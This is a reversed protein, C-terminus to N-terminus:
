HDEHVQQHAEDVRGRGLLHPEGALVHLDCRDCRRAHGSWADKGGEVSCSPVDEWGERSHDRLPPTLARGDTLLYSVKGSLRVSPHLIRDPPPHLTAASTRPM